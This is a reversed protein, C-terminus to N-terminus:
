RPKGARKLRKLFNSRPRKTSAAVDAPAELASAADPAEIAVLPEADMVRAIQRKLQDKAPIAAALIEKFKWVDTLQFHSTGANLYIDPQQSKLKERVISREFIFSAGLLAETATPHNRDPSAVPAGSVDIAITVDAKGLVLDFPLPNTLGGDVLARGEVVVPEFVAPLAMSAAVARRLPGDRFVVADLGYFDTAVVELPIALHSFERAVRSPYVVELLAEASLVANMPSFMGAVRPLTRARASFLDRVLDFRVSLAEDMHARIERASLGSAYAAGMIAGISTGAILKPRVGLEDFAEFMVVHALGRAGGGGLALGITSQSDPVALSPHPATTAVRGRSPCVLDGCLVHARRRPRALM